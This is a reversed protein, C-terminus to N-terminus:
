VVKLAPAAVAEDPSAEAGPPPPPPAPPQDQEHRQQEISQVLAWVEDFPRTGLVQRVYALGSATLAISYRDPM